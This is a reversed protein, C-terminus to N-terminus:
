PSGRHFTITKITVPEVPKDNATQVAAIATVVDQNDCQGFINYSGTLDDRAAMTIFFQSGNTDPGANAMALVGPKDLRLDPAIENGFEYGPGGTGDAKPDGGQIMFGPIVRHFTLGDFYPKGTVVKDTVPDVWPVLGRALGVFNAVTMPAKDEALTCHITGKSTDLTAILAGSGKVGKTYAALDDKTPVHMGDKLPPKHSKRYQQVCSDFYELKQVKMWCERIELPLANEECQKINDGKAAELQARMSPDVGPTAMYVDIEHQIVNACSPDVPAADVAPPPPAAPKAIEAPPKKADDKKAPAEAKQCAALALLAAAWRAKV